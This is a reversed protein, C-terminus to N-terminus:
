RRDTSKISLEKIVEHSSEQSSDAHVGLLDELKLRLKEKIMQEYKIM